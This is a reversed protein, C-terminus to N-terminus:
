HKKATMMTRGRAGHMRDSHPGCFTEFSGGNSAQLCQGCPMPQMENLGTCNNSFPFVWQELMGDKCQGIASGGGNLGQCVDQPFKVSTCNVSCNDDSCQVQTVEGTWTPSPTQPPGNPDFRLITSDDFVTLATAFGVGDVFTIDSIAGIFDISRHEAWTLGGDQSYWFIGKSGSQMMFSGGVWVENPGNFRVSMMSFQGSANDKLHLTEQFTLGDTTTWVHGGAKDNEGDGVAVCRTASACDIGNPYYTTAEYMVNHWTSGADTTKAIVCTYGDDVPESVRQQKWKGSSPDRVLRVRHSLRISDATSSASSSSGSPWNGLTVYWTNADAIAGYRAGTENNPMQSTIDYTTFNKGANTSYLVTNTGSMGQSVVLINKGDRSARIDQTVVLFPQSSPMLTTSNIFYQLSDGFGMGGVVGHPEEATGGVAIAMLMMDMHPMNLGTFNGNPQGNFNLVDFGAGNSGGAIFCSSSSVCSVSMMISPCNEYPPQFLDIWGRPLEAIVTTAALALAILLMMKM